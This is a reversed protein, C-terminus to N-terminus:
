IRRFLKIWRKHIPEHVKSDNKIDVFREDNKDGREEKIEKQKNSRLVADILPNNSTMAKFDSIFININGINPRYIITKEGMKQARTKIHNELLPFTAKDEKNIFPNIDLKPSHSPSPIPNFEPSCGLDLDHHYNSSKM